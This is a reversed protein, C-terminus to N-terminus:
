PLPVSYITAGNLIYLRKQRADPALDVLHDFRPSTIQEKLNGSKELIVVRRETPELIYLSSTDSALRSPALLPPDLTAVTFPVEEGRTFKRIRGQADAVYISGDITLAVAGPLTIGTKLWEEGPNMGNETLDFKLLSGTARNLTYVRKGYAAIDGMNAADENQRLFALDRTSADFRGFGQSSVFYLLSSGPVATGRTLRVPVETSPSAVTVSQTALQIFYVTLTETNFTYLTQDVPGILGGPIIQEQANTYHSVNILVEPADVVHIRFVRRRSTELRGQLTHSRQQQERTKRPLTDLALLAAKLSLRAKEEDGYILAAEAENGKEEIFSIKAEYEANERARIKQNTISIVSEIFLIGLLLSSIFLYQSSRPLKRFRARANHLVRRWSPLPAPMSPAAAAVPAVNKTRLRPFLLHLFANIRLSVARAISDFARTAFIRIRSSAFTMKLNAGVKKLQVSIQPKGQRRSLSSLMLRLQEFWSGTLLESTRSALTNLDAMSLHSDKEFFGSPHLPVSPVSEAALAAITVNGPLDKLLRKLHQMLDPPREENLFVRIKDITFYDFLHRCSMFLRDGPELAGQILSPFIKFAGSPPEQDQQASKLIDTIRSHHHLYARVAGFTALSLTADDIVALAIHLKKFWAHTKRTVSLVDENFRRCVEMLALEGSEAQSTEYRAHIDSILGALVAETKREMSDIEVLILLTWPHRSITGPNPVSTTAYSKPGGLRLTFSDSIIM